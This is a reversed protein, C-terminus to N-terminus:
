VGARRRSLQKFSPQQPQTRPPVEEPDILVLRGWPRQHRQRSFLAAAKPSIAILQGDWHQRGDRFQVAWVTM